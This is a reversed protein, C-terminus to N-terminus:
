LLAYFLYFRYVLNLPTYIPASKICATANKRFFRKIFFSSIM